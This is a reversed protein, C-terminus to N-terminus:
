ALELDKITYGYPAELLGKINVKLINHEINPYVFDTLYAAVEESDVKRLVLACLGYYCINEKAQPHLETLTTEMVWDPIPEILDLDNGSAAM